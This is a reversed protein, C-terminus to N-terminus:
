AVSSVAVPQRELTQKLKRLSNDLMLSVGAEITAIIPTAILMGLTTVIRPTIALQFRVQTHGPIREEFRWVVESDVSVGNVKQNVARLRILRNPQLEVVTYLLKIGFGGFNGVAAAKAGLEYPPPTIAQFCFSQGLYNQSNRCDAVYNFIENSPRDIRVLKEM